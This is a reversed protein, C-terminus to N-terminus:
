SGAFDIHKQLYFAFQIQM